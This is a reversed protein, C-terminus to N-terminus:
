LCVEGDLFTGDVADDADFELAAVHNGRRDAEAGNIFETEGDTLIGVGDDLRCGDHDTDIMVM